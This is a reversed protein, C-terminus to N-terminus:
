TKILPKQKNITGVKTITAQILDNPKLGLTKAIKSPLTIVLTDRGATWVEQTITITNDM